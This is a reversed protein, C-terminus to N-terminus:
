DHGERRSERQWALFDEISEDEPWVEGMTDLDEETLPKIGQEEAEKLLRALRQAASPAQALSPYPPRNKPHDSRSPSSRLKRSM